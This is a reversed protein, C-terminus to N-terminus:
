AAELFMRGEGRGGVAQYLVVRPLGVGPRVPGVEQNDRSMPRLYLMEGSVYRRM